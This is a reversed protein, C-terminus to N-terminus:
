DCGVATSMWQQAICKWTVFNDAGDACKGRVYQCNRPSGCNDLGTPERDPCRRSNGRMSSIGGVQLNALARSRLDNSQDAATCIMTHAESVWRRGHCQLTTFTKTSGDPCEELVYQCLDDYRLYCDQGDIIDEQKPCVSTPQIMSEKRLRPPLEDALAFPATVQGQGFAHIQRVGTQSLSSESPQPLEPPLQQAFPRGVVQGQRLSTQALAAEQISQLPLWVQQMSGQAPMVESVQASDASRFQQLAARTLPAGAGGAQEAFPALPRRQRMQAELESLQPAVKVVPTDAEHAAATPPDKPMAEVLSAPPAKSKATDSAHASDNSAASKTANLAVLSKPETCKKGDNDYPRCFGTGDERCNADKRSKADADPGAAWGMSCTEFNMMFVSKGWIHLDKSWKCYQVWGEFNEPQRCHRAKIKSSTKNSKAAQKASSPTSSAVAQRLSAPPASARKASELPTADAVPKAAEGVVYDGYNASYDDSGKDVLSVQPPPKSTAAVAHDAVHPPKNQAVVNSSSQGVNAVSAHQSGQSRSVMPEVQPDLARSPVAAIVGLSTASDPIEARPRDAGNDSLRNSSILPWSDQITSAPFNYPYGQITSAVPHPLRSWLRPDMLAPDDHQQRLDQSEGRILVPPLPLPQRVDPPPVQEISQLESPQGVFYPTGSFPYANNLDEGVEEEAMGVRAAYTHLVTSSILLAFAMQIVPRATRPVIM